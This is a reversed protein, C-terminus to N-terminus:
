KKKKKKKKKGQDDDKQIKQKIDLMSPKKKISTMPYKLRSSTRRHHGITGSHGNSQKSSVPTDPICSPYKELNSEKGDKKIDSKLASAATSGATL